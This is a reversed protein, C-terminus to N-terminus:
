CITLSTVDVIPLGEGRIKVSKMKNVTYSGPFDIEFFIDEIERTMFIFSCGKPEELHNEKYFNAIRAVIELAPGYIMNSNKDHLIKQTIETSAIGIRLFCKQKLMEEVLNFATRLANEKDKFLIINSDDGSPTMDGDSLISIHNEIHSNIIEILRSREEKNIQSSGIQDFYVIVRDEDMMEYNHSLQLLLKNAEIPGEIRLKEFIEIAEKLQVRAEEYDGMESFVLASNLLSYALPSALDVNRLISIAEAWSEKAKQLQGLAAYTNGLNGLSKSIGQFDGISRAIELSNKYYQQAREFVGNREFLNGLNNLTIAKGQLNGISEEIQLSKIYLSEATILDGQKQALLGLNHYVSAIGRRDGLEEAMMLSREFYSKAREYEGTEQSIIGLQHYASAIGRRDGLEEAMM